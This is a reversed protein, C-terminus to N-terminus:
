SHRPKKPAEDREDIMRTYTAQLTLCDAVHFPHPAEVGITGEVGNDVFAQLLEIYKMDAENLPLHNREGKESYHIGSMHSHLTKIGEEGLMERVSKLASDFEEYSNFTGNGTRAHLHAWDICPMVGEIDRSLQLVEDLDGFMASKGMTEPRLTVKVGEERLISTIEILKEKAREFVQEPPQKHYSGPHFVIDTAGALFGKRAALLLRGDSAEMKEATQSNLNIFYPAHISLSIKCKKATAKIEVCTDDNVNVSRVWGIELHHLGLEKSHLIAAPTGSKPTSSPSGVTGFRLENKYKLLGKGELNRIYHLPTLYPCM